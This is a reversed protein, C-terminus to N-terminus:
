GKRRSKARYTTARKEGTKSLRGSALADKIPREIDKKEIGLSARIQEARLGTPHKSVLAVIKDSLQALDAESRRIRGARAAPRAVTKAGRQASAGGTVFEGLAQQFLALLSEAFENSLKEIQPKLNM